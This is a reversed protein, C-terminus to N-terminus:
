ATEPLAFIDLALRVFGWFLVILWYLKASHRGQAAVPCAQFPWFAVACIVAKFSEFWLFSHFNLIVVTNFFSNKYFVRENKM